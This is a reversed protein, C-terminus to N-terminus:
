SAGPTRGAPAACMLAGLGSWRPITAGFFSDPFTQQGLSLPGARRRPSAQQEQWGMDVIFLDM